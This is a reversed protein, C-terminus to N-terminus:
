PIESPRTNKLVRVNKMELVGKKLSGKPKKESEQVPFVRSLIKM